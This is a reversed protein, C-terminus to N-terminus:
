ILRDNPAAGELNYLLISLSKNDTVDFNVKSLEGVDVISHEIGIIVEPSIRTEGGGYKWM